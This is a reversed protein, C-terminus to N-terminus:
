YNEISGYSELFVAKNDIVRFKFIYAYICGAPCDGSGYSFTLIDGETNRKLIIDSGDGIGRADINVQNIQPLAEYLKKIPILNYDLKTKVIIVPLKIPYLSPYYKEASKLPFSNIVADLNQAGTPIINNSLNEIEPLDTKVRLNLRTFNSRFYIGIKYRNFVSDTQPSKLNYVAQIKKLIEIVETSDIIPNNYNPHTINAEIERFYITKADQLYHNVIFTDLKFTNDPTQNTPSENKKCGFILFPIFILTLLNKM